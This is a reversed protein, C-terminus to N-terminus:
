PAGPGRRCARKSAPFLTEQVGGRRRPLPTFVTGAIAPGVSLLPEISPRTYRLVADSKWNGCQKILDMSLGAAFAATAGGSRMCHTTYRAPNLGIDAIGIKLFKAYTRYTLANGRDDALWPALPGLHACDELLWREVLTPVCLDSADSGLEEVPQLRGVRAQDTKGGKILFIARKKGNVMSM